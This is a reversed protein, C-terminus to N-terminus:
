VFKNLFLHVLIFITIVVSTKPTETSWKGTSKLKLEQYNMGIYMAGLTVVLALIIVLTGIVISKKRNMKSDELNWISELM